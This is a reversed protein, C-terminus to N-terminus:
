RATASRACCCRSSRWSRSRPSQLGVAIVVFVLTAALSYAPATSAVGMVVSSFLGLAGSEPGQRQIRRYSFTQRPPRQGHSGEQSHGPSVPDLYVRDGFPGLGSALVRDGPCLRLILAGLGVTRAHLYLAEARYGNYCSFILSTEDAAEALTYSRVMRMSRTPAPPTPVASARIAARRGNASSTM